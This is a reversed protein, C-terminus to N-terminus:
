AIVLKTLAAVQKQLSKVKKDRMETARAIAGERTRHWQRGEGHLYAVGNLGGHDFVVAMGDDISKVRCEVVGATLAYKTSWVTKM